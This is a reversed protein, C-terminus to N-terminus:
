LDAVNYSPFYVLFFFFTFIKSTLEKGTMLHISTISTNIHSSKPGTRMYGSIKLDEVKQIREGSHFTKFGYVIQFRSSPRVWICICTSEFHSSTVFESGTKVSYINLMAASLFAIAKITAM